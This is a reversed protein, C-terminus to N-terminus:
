FNGVASLTDPFTKFLETFGALELAEHIRTPVSALVVEGRNYRKCVRQAALLARFGASSMYELGALDLVIKFHGDEGVKELKQSLLQANSSDVRGKVEIVVCHKFEKLNIEM